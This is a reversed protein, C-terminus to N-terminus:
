VEFRGLYLIAELTKTIAIVVNTPFALNEFAQLTTVWDESDDVGEVLMSSIDSSSSSTRYLYEFKSAITTTPTTTTTTTSTTTHTNNNNNNNDNNNDGNNNDDNNYQGSIANM